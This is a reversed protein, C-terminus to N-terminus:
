RGMREILWARLDDETAEGSAVKLFIKTVEDPDVDLSVGNLELFAGMALAAVRKNGDIFPHNKVLGFALRAAKDFLTPYLDEGGFTQFPASLAADLLREDRVGFEGGFEEILARHYHIIAIRDIATM